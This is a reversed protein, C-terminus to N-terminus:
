QKEKEFIGRKYIEPYHEKNIDKDLMKNFYVRMGLILFPYIFITIIAYLAYKLFIYQILNLLLVSTLLASFLFIVVFHKIYIFFSNRFNDKIKWDYITSTEIHTILVPFFISQVLAFPLYKLFTGATSNIVLLSGYILLAYIIFFILNTTLNQKVGKNFDKFFYFGEERAVLLNIRSLGSIGISAFVIGLALGINFLNYSTIRLADIESPDLDTTLLSMLYYGKAFNFGFAPIFFLFSMLGILIITQWNQKISDLFLEGYTSPLRVERDSVSSRHKENRSYVKM